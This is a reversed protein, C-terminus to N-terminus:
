DIKHPFSPDIDYTYGADGLYSAIEIIGESNTNIIMRDGQIKKEVVKDLRNMIEKKISNNEMSELKKYMFVLKYTISDRIATPGMTWENCNECFLGDFLWGKIHDYPQAQLVM